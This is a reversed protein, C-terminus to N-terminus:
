TAFAFSANHTKRWAKYTNKIFELLTVYSMLHLRIVTIMNAFSKKTAAKKRIIVMLLQAILVCYVQMKIANSSEGWFYRLPFNQKLQKFLLEILWRNKYITAVQLAPLTFNNTVFEYQKGQETTFVIRRLKLRQIVSGNQKVAVTIYQEKLIGKGKKKKTKDLLVKTVHYDANGKMRTVFWIKQDTWKAFQHYVTYAKDFVLWSHAALNLHYLFRRDHERAETMRVFETVGSFADMMAHVKIGGKKRGGDLRNRGVGRLIESFLQITSSDIIKLNRISLGKLRSDSIFSHYQQLLGEYITEFVRYSRKTNADSLTSRAPAKDFGLHTLRGECALLGECMERLGNCYSLVGYLLSVLHTRLPLRKYYRNAQHKRNARNILSSPIVELIQSLVPQGTFKRDESM